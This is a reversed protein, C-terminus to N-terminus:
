LGLLRPRNWRCDARDFALGRIEQEAAEVSWSVAYKWLLDANYKLQLNQQAGVDDDFHRQVRGSDAERVRLGVPPGEGSTKNNELQRGLEPRVDDLCYEGVRDEVVELPSPGPCPQGSADRCDPHASGKRWGLAQADWCWSTRGLGPAAMGSAWFSLLLEESVIRAADASGCCLSRIERASSLETLDEGALRLSTTQHEFLM